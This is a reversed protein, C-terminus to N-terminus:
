FPRFTCLYVCLVRACVCMCVCVQVNSQFMTTATHVAKALQQQQKQQQQQHHQQKSTTTDAACESPTSVSSPALLTSHSAVSQLLSPLSEAVATVNDTVAKLEASNM